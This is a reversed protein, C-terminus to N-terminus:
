QVSGEEDIDVSWVLKMFDAYVENLHQIAMNIVATVMRPDFSENDCPLPMDLVIDGDDAVYYKFIKYSFNLKNIYSLLKERNGEKAAYSVVRIKIVSYISDDTFFLLPLMQGQVDIDTRFVVTNIEDGKEEAGFFSMQNEVLFARFKEAKQNITLKEM